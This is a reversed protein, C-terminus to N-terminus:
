QPPVDKKDIGQWFAEAAKELDEVAAASENVEVDTIKLRALCEGPRQRFRSKAEEELWEASRSRKLFTGYSRDSIAHHMARRTPLSMVYDVWRQEYKSAIDARRRRAAQCDLVMAHHKQADGKGVVYLLGVLPSYFIYEATCHFCEFRWRINRNPGPGPWTDHEEWEAIMKGNSCMCSFTREMKEYAMHLHYRTTKARRQPPVSSIGKM